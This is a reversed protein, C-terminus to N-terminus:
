ERKGGESFHIIRIKMKVKQIPFYKGISIKKNM